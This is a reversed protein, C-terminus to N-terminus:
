LKSRNQFPLVKWRSAIKSLVRWNEQLLRSQCVPRDPHLRERFIEESKVSHTSLQPSNATQSSSPSSLITMTKLSTCEYFAQYGIIKVLSPITISKLSTCRKFAYAGITTVSNPITIDVLSHCDKFTGEQITELKSGNQFNIKRLSICNLFAHQGITTVSKPIIICQLWDDDKFTNDGIEEVKQSIEFVPKKRQNQM